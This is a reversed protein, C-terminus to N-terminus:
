VAGCPTQINKRCLEAGSVQSRSLLDDAEHHYCPLPACSVKAITVMQDTASKYLILVMRGGGELSVWDNESNTPCNMSASTPSFVYFRGVEIPEGSSTFASAPVPVVSNYM